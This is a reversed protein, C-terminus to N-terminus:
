ALPRYFKPNSQIKSTDLLTRGALTFIRRAFRWGEPLRSLFDEYRGFIVNLQDSSHRIGLEITSWRAVVRDGDIQILGGHEIM